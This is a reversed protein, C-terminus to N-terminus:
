GPRHALLQQGDVVLGHDVVGQGRQHERPDPLYENDGGGLVEGAELFQEAVAGLPADVELVGHLRLRLPEGLGEDDTPLEDAGLADREDEPVVDEEPLAERSEQLPRRAPRVPGGDEPVVDTVGLAVADDLEVAVPRDKLM